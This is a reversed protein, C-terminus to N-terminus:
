GMRNLERFEQVEAPTMCCGSQDTLPLAGVHKGAVLLVRARTAPWLSEHNEQRDQRMQEEIEEQVVQVPMRKM